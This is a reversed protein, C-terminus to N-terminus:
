MKINDKFIKRCFLAINIQIFLNFEFFYTFSYLRQALERNHEILQNLLGQIFLNGIFYILFGLNIWFLPDNNLSLIRNTALLQRFYILIWITILLSEIIKAYSDVVLWGEAFFTLLACVAFFGYVSWHVAKKISSNRFSPYYMLCLLAYEVPTFIRYLFLNNIKQLQMAMGATSVAALVILYIFLVNLTHNWHKRQTIFCIITGYLM